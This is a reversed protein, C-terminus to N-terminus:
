ILLSKKRALSGNLAAFSTTSVGGNVEPDLQAVADNYESASSLGFLATQVTGMDGTANALTDLVTGVSANNGATTLTSSAVLTPTITFARAPLM